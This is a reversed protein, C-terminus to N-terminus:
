KLAQQEYYGTLGNVLDSLFGLAELIALVDASDKENEKQIIDSIASITATARALVLQAREPNM